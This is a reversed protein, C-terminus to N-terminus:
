GGVRRGGSDPQKRTNSRSVPGGDGARELVLDGVEISDMVETWKPLEAAAADHLEHQRRAHRRISKSAYENTYFCLRMGCGSEAMRWM